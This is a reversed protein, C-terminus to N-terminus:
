KENEACKTCIAETIGVTSNEPRVYRYFMERGLQSCKQCHIFLNTTAEFYNWGPFVPIEKKRGRQKTITDSPWNKPM